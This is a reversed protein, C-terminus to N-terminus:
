GMRLWNLRVWTRKNRGLDIKINDVMRSWPRGLLWKGEPKEVLVMYVNRNEGICAVNGVL